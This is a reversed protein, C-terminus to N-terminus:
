IVNKYTSAKVNFKLFLSSSMDNPCTRKKNKSKRILFKSIIPTKNNKRLKKKM